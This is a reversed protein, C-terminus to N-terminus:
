LCGAAAEIAGGDFSLFMTLQFSVGITVPSPRRPVGLAGPVPGIVAGNGPATCGIDGALGPAAKPAGGM